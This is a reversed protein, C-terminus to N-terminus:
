AAGGALREIQVRTADRLRLAEDWGPATPAIPAGIAISVTGPRPQWRDAPLIARTGRIGVPVVPVGCEAAVVFAGLHLPLLGPARVFTGEPFVLLSEGGRVAAILDRVDDVGRAAEFREVYRAGLADLLRRMLPQRRFEAKAIFTFRPPLVATLVISDIYSAHNAVVACPADPLRELGIADLRVGALRAGARALVRAIRRRRTPGPVFVAPLAIAAILGAAGWIRVAPALRGIRVGWTRVRALASLAALRVVQVWVARRPLATLGREFAERTAARRIKGSSTKLVAHPPALVIEDAPGGILEVARENIQARLQARRSEDTERTEAIVVVRETAAARDRVGLVAVCGKRIGPLTGVAEELEYPHINHGGRIILDKARGTIYLEGQALYGLDGSDLWDGDKLNATAQPNRFYGPTASPGRFEVRGQTREALERGRADVIRIAYDPLARGCGVVKEARPDDRAVPEARARFRLADRDIVDVQLGRRPPPFALDLACEALGYVAAIARADLGHRAFRQAFREMTDASVAEAGNFLWRLSRLDLGELDSDPVRSAVLEFAFNPAAAITARHQHIAWLWRAPRALFSQPAMLVLQMGYYLSGMWAGILGMDHYLPLWSVFVDRSDAGAARGMARLNALLHAHTLIVGKPSGTSGSTYQLFAIDDPALAAPPATDASALDDVTLVARLSPVAGRLLRALARAEHVTVLLTAECNALIGAQRRLHDELQSMRFPPYIPVPIAGAMLVGFFLALFDLSTPLMLACAARPALGAARLGAAIARARRDLEGYTLTQTDTDSALFTVHRRDPHRAAHWALVDLLTRADDPAGEISPLEAAPAAVPPAAAGAALLAALLDRPTDAALLAHDRLRVGFEREIRLGLEVRALSDLGLEADLRADLWATVPAGRLQALLAEILALLRRSALEADPVRTPAQVAPIPELM